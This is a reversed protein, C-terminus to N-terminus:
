GPKVRPTSVPFCGTQSQGGLRMTVTSSELFDGLFLGDCLTLSGCRYLIHNPFSRPFRYSSILTSQRYYFLFCVVTKHQRTTSGDMWRSRRGGCVRHSQLMTASHWWCNFWCCCGIEAVSCTFRNGLPAIWYFFMELFCLIDFLEVMTREHWKNKHTNRKAVATAWSFCCGEHKLIKNAPYFFIFTFNYKPAM